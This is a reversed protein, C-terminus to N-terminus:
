QPHEVALGQFQRLDVGRGGVRFAPHDAPDLAALFGVAHQLFVGEESGQDLDEGLESGVLRHVHEAGPLLQVDAIAVGGQLVAAGRWVLDLGCDLGSAVALQQRVNNGVGVDEGRAGLFQQDRGPIVRGVLRHAIVPVKADAPDLQGQVARGLALGGPEALGVELRRLTLVGAIGAVAHDLVVVGQGNVLLGQGIAPLDEGM